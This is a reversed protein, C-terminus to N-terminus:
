CIKEGRKESIDELLSLRDKLFWRCYRLSREKGKAFIKDLKGDKFFFRSGCIYYLTMSSNKYIDVPMNTTRICEVLKCNYEYELPDRYNMIFNVIEKLINPTNTDIKDFYRIDEYPMNEYSWGFIGVNNKFCDAKLSIWPDDKNYKRFRIYIRTNVSSLGSFDVPRSRGFDINDFKKELECAFSKPVEGIKQIQLFIESESYTNDTKNTAIAIENKDKLRELKLKEM